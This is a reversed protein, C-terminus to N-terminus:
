MDVKWSTVLNGLKEEYWLSRTISNECEPCYAFEDGRNAFGVLSIAVPTHTVCVPILVNLSTM